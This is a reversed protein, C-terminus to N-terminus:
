KKGRKKGREGSDMMSKSLATGNPAAKWCGWIRHRHRQFLSLGLEDSM